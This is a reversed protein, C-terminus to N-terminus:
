DEIAELFIKEDFSGRERAKKLRLQELEDKSLGKFQAIAYIVELLDVLEECNDDKIYEDLEERLKIDLEEKYRDKDLVHTTPKQGNNIIIQPILDRVLKNKITM